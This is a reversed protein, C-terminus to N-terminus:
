ITSLSLSTATSLSEQTLWSTASKQIRCNKHCMREKSLKICELQNPDISCSNARQTNLTAAYKQDIIYQILNFESHMKINGTEPHM